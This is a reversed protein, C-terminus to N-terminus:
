SNNEQRVNSATWADAAAQKFYKTPLAGSIIIITQRM